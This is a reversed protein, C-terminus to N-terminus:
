HLLPAFRVKMAISPVAIRAFAVSALGVGLSIRTGYLIASLMDRGQDDTGLLYAPNGGDVWAPPSLSDLLSLSALDFPDHPAIWPAGAASVFIALTVITALVTVKSRWFAHLLDSDLARM